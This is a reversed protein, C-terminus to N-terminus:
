KKHKGEMEEKIRGCHLVQPFHLQVKRRAIIFASQSWANNMSDLM